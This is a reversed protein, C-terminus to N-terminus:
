ACQNPIWAPFSHLLIGPGLSSLPSGKSHVCMFSIAALGMFNLLLTKKQNLGGYSQSFFVLLVVCHLKSALSDNLKEAASPLDLSKHYQGLHLTNTCTGTIDGLRIWWLLSISVTHYADYIYNIHKSTQSVVQGNMDAPYQLSWVITPLIWALDNRPKLPACGEKTALFLNGKECIHFM